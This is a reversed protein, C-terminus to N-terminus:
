RDYTVKLIGDTSGQRIFKINDLNTYGEIILVMNPYLLHGESASPDNDDRRYRIPAGEITITARAARRKSTTEMTVATLGKATAAVTISEYAFPQYHQNITYQLNNNM